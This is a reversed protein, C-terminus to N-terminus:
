SQEKIKNHLEQLIDMTEIALDQNSYDENYWHQFAQDFTFYRCGASIILENTLKERFVNFKHGDSREITYSKVGKVQASIKQGVRTKYKGIIVSFSVYSNKAIFSQDCIRSYNIRSYESIISNGSVRSGLNIVTFAGVTANGYVFSCSSVYAKNDVTATDAVIGGGNFHIKAKVPGNGDGFDHYFM